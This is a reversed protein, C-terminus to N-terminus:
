RTPREPPAAPGSREPGEGPEAPAAREGRASRAERAALFRALAEAGRTFRGPEPLLGLVLHACPDGRADAPELDFLFGPQVLVDARELLDLVLAEEDPAAGSTGAPVRVLAAWGAEAPLLAAGTPAAAHAAALAARNVALRRRLADGSAL